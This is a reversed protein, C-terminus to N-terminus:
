YTDYGLIEAEASSYEGLYTYDREDMGYHERLERAAKGRKKEESATPDTFIEVFFQEGENDEYLLDIWEKKVVKVDGKGNVNNIKWSASLFPYREISEYFNEMAETQNTAEILASGSFDVWYKEM